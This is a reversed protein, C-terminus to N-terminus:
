SNGGIDANQHAYQLVNEVFTLYKSMIRTPFLWIHRALAYAQYAPRRSVKLYVLRVYMCLKERGRKLDGRISSRVFESNSFLSLTLIKEDLM